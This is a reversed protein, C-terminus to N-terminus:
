IFELDFELMMMINLNEHCQGIFKVIKGTSDMYYQKGVKQTGNGQSQRIM